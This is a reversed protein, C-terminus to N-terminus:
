VQSLIIIGAVIIIAGALRVLTNEESFIEGGILVSFLVSSQFVATVLAVSSAVAYLFVSLIGAVSSLLGAAVFNRNVFLERSPLSEWYWLMLCLGFLNSGYWLYTVLYEPVGGSAFRISLAGAASFFASLVALQVGRDGINRFPSLLDSSEMMLVYSGAVLLFVGALLIFSPELGILVLEGAVVFLPALKKMPQAVSFDIEQFSRVGAWVKGTGFLGAVVAAFLSFADFFFGSRYVRFVVYPALFVLAYFTVMFSTKLASFREAETKMLASMSASFVSSIVALAVVFETQLAM